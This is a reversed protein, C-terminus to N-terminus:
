EFSEERSRDFGRQREIWRDLEPLLGEVYAYVDADVHAALKMFAAKRLTLIDALSGSWSRPHLRDKLNGLFQKKDPSQKLLSLFHPALDMGEGSSKFTPLAEGLLPYRLIPDREAWEQLIAADMTELLSDGSYVSEFFNGQGGDLFFTDLAVFPQTDLIARLTRDLDHPAVQYNEFATRIRACLMGAAGCGDEGVLCMEIVKSLAYSRQPRDRSLEVESLLDRGIKILETEHRIDDRKDQTFFYMHLIDLAVRGGAPLRAIDELMRALPEQPSNSISGNAISDFFQSQLKGAAIARRLRSIGEVDLGVRAQLYPLVAFLDPLNFAEELVKSAFIFDRQYAQALFGGLVTANRREMPAAKYATILESWLLNLDSAGDALGQGFKFARDAPGRLLEPIFEKRVQTDNALARGIDAAMADIRRYAGIADGDDDEGDVFDWSNPMRKLIVARAQNLLDSPKLQRTLRELDTRVEEPMDEGDFRLAARCAMWGEIWPGTKTFVSVAQTIADRSGPFRWLGRLHQALLVRADAEPVIEIVLKVAEEYWNWIDGNLKPEWGLNRSRAGFDNSDLSTFQGSYLLARLAILACNRLKPNSSAALRKIVDRRQDPPAMTGSLYLHFFESFIRVESTNSDAEVNEPFLRALLMAAREFLKADHGIAKILRTYEQWKAAFGTESTELREELKALVMEPAVPAINSVIQIGVDSLSLLDGLPGEKGLWRTVVAKAVPSDHLFGLRRSVSKLMRHQLGRCVRDFQAPPIRELAYFALQNAIAHPLIARFRGRAQVVGRQRMEVLKEYLLSPEIESFAGAHALEGASSMDEGDISYFLALDEAARLLQKDPHNRQSFIREFLERSKLKGLTEGKEFTEALARAVRFNGDSFKAIMRRDVESIDSFEQKIWESVLEPAATELRFVDTREPVDDRVDYEVTILSIESGTASCLGALKAHTAPNCNDVILIARQHSAILERAMDSATPTTEESYDTYVAISADLSDTGVDEEFLAQVLRTKGVGSLGILRICQGPTRLRTRLREIGKVVPLHERSHSSEDILCDADNSLYPKNDQGSWNGISNWGALPRGIRGRVWLSVGPYMNTWTALRDRDYFDTHLQVSNAVDDLADLMAQRRAILASDALSGQSSVIVYAGSANALDRIVNRLQGKPRMEDRIASPPMDTKKVQFGTHRSPVFDPNAIDAPCEVRVDIGGDAADQNGGATVSSLPCGKIKLEAIALRTVLSRLDVDNLDAIDSGSIEFM